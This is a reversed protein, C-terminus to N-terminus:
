TPGLVSCFDRLRLGMAECGEGANSEQGLTMIQDGSEPSIEPARLGELRALTMCDGNEDYNKM